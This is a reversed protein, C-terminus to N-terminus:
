VSLSPIHTMFGSTTFATLGGPSTASVVNLNCEFAHAFCITALTM